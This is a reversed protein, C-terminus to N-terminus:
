IPSLTQQRRLPDGFDSRARDPPRLLTWNGGNLYNLVAERQAELGLGSIGFCVDCLHNDLFHWDTDLFHLDFWREDLFHSNVL